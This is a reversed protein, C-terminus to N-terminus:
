ARFLTAAPRSSGRARTTAVYWLRVRERALEEVNWAKIDAYDAPETGFIPISFEILGAIM